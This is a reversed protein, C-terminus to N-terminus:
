ESYCRELEATYKKIAHTDNQKISEYLDAGVYIRHIAQALRVDFEDHQEKAIRDIREMVAHPWKDWVYYDSSRPAIHADGFDLIGTIKEGSSGMLINDLNLDNHTFELESSVDFAEAYAIDDRLKSQAELSLVSDPLSKAQSLELDWSYAPVGLGGADVLSLQKSIAQRAVVWQHLFEDSIQNNLNNNPHKGELIKYGFYREDPSIYIPHPTQFPLDKLKLLIRYEMTTNQIDEQMDAGAINSPIRFVIEDNVLVAVRGEGSGIIKLDAIPLTPFDKQIVERYVVISDPIIAKNYTMYGMIGLARTFTRPTENGDSFDTVQLFPM